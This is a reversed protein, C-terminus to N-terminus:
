KRVAFKKIYRYLWCTRLVASRKDVFLPMVSKWLKSTTTTWKGGRWNSSPSTRLCFKSNPTLIGTLYMPNRMIINLFRNTRHVASAKMWRGMWHFASRRHLPSWSNRMKDSGFFEVFWAVLGPTGYFLKGLKMWPGVGGGLKAPPFRHNRPNLEFIKQTFNGFKSPRYSKFASM